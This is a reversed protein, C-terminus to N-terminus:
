VFQDESMGCMTEGRGFKMFLMAICGARLRTRSVCFIELYHRQLFFDLSSTLRKPELRVSPKSNLLLYNRQPENECINLLKDPASPVYYVHLNVPKYM